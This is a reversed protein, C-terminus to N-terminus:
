PSRHVRLHDILPRLAQRSNTARHQTEVEASHPAARALEVAPVAFLLVEFRDEVVHRHPVRTRFQPGGPKRKAGPDRQLDAGDVIAYGRENADRRGDRRRHGTLDVAELVRECADLRLEEDLPFGVFDTREFAHPREIGPEFFRFLQDDDVAGIVQEFAFRLFNSLRELIQETVERFLSGQVMFSATMTLATRVGIPFAGFPAKRLVRGSSMPATTMVSASRRAGPSSGASTSSTMRPQAIGSASCPSFTARM